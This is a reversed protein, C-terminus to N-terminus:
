NTQTKSVSLFDTSFFVTLYTLKLAQLAVSYFVNNYFFWKFRFDHMIFCRRFPRPNLWSVFATVLHANSESHM